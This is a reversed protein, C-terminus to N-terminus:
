ESGLLYGVNRITKIIDTGLKRRLHHIHVEVANSEVESGFGYLSEEIQAKTRVREPHMMFDLLISYERSSLSIQQGSRTVRRTVPDLAIDQIRLVADAHGGSRRILARLRANLEDIDFPKTLYDDAGSDLGAIKDSSTDRATLVLVPTTNGLKRVHKLLDLGNKKPLGIDLICAAYEQTKLALLGQEGDKVWDVIYDGLELAMRIGDGILADDEILLIRM